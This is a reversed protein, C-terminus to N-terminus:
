SKPKFVLCAALVGLYFLALRFNEVFNSCSETATLLPRSFRNNMKM